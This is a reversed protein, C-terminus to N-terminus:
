ELTSLKKNELDDILDLLKQAKEIRRECIKRFDEDFNMDLLKKMSSIEKMPTARMENFAAKIEEETM